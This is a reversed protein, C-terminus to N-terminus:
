EDQIMWRTDDMKYGGDQIRWRTDEM